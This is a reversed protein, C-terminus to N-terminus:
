GRTRGGGKFSSSVSVFLVSILLGLDRPTRPWAPILVTGRTQAKGDDRSATLKIPFLNTKKSRQFETDPVCCGCCLCPSGMWGWPSSGVEGGLVYVLSWMCGLSEFIRAVPFDPFSNTSDTLDVNATTGGAGSTMFYSITLCFGNPQMDDQVSDPCNLIGANLFCVLM